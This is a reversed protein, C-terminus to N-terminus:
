KSRMFNRQWEGVTEIARERAENLTCIRAMGRVICIYTTEGARNDSYAEGCAFGGPLYIPPVAGLLFDADAEAISNWDTETIKNREIIGM